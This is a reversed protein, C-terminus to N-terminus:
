DLSENVDTSPAGNTSALVVLVLAQAVIFGVILWVAAVERYGIFVAAFLAATLLWKGAQWALMRGISPNRDAHRWAQYRGAVFLTPVLCVLSGLLAALAAERGAGFAVFLATLMPQVLLAIRLARVPYPSESGASM